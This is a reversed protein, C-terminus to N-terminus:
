NYTLSNIFEFVHEFTWSGGWHSGIETIIVKACQNNQALEISNTYPAILDRRSHVLLLPKNIRKVKELNNLKTIFDCLNLQAKFFPFLTPMKYKKLTYDAVGEIASKFDKIASQLIVAKVNYESAIESAVVTGYSHGWLIINEEAIGLKELQKIAAKADKYTGVETPHGCSKYHGRYSLLFLGYGQKLCFTAVDQHSLISEAQGHFFLIVPKDEEPEIFWGFLKVRDEAFFRQVSFKKLLNRHLRVARLKAPQFLIYNEMNLRVFSCFRNPLMFLPYVLIYLIKKIFLFNYIFKRM